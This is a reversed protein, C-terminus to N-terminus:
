QATLILSSDINWVGAALLDDQCGHRPASAFGAVIEHDHIILTCPVWLINNFAQVKHTELTVIVLIRFRLFFMAFREKRLRTNVSLGEPYLKRIGIAKSIPM